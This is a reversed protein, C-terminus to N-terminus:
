AFYECVMADDSPIGLVWHIWVSSATAFEEPKRIPHFRRRGIDQRERPFKQPSRNLFCVSQKPRVVRYSSVLASHPRISELLDDVSRGRFLEGQGLVVLFHEARLEHERQFPVAGDHERQFPVAGLTEPEPFGDNEASDRDTVAM